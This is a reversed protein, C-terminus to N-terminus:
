AGQWDFLVGLTEERRESLMRYVAPADRPDCRHTVLDDVKMQGRQVYDLFLAAQRQPTWYAHQPPLRASRSGVLTVQRALIDHTLRQRSPHPSDGLLVVKGSDRALPLAVPLVAWHGTVDYVVDALRGQTHQVIFERADAANARLAATAGHALATELRMAVPDVVLIQQLGMARLYQTVLQGLPGLGIVVATDGMVHEAHRVGTQTIVALVAWAAQEDSIAEPVAPAWLAAPPVNARARHPVTACVRDGERVDAVGPGVKVVRGVACYGPRHPFAQYREWHTGDDREGRLCILETGTSVLTHTAQFTVEGEGPDGVEEEVLEVQGPATFVIATSKM